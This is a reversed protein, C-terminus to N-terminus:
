LVHLLYPVWAALCILILGLSVAGGFTRGGAACAAVCKSFTNTTFAM